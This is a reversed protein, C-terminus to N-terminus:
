EPRGEPDVLLVLLRQIKAPGPIYVSATYLGSLAARRPTCREVPRQASGGGVGRARATGSSSPPPAPGAGGGRAPVPAEQRRIYVSLHQTSRVMSICALM